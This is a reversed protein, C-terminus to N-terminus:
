TVISSYTPCPTKRVYMEYTSTNTGQAGTICIKRRVDPIDGTATQSYWQQTAPDFVVIEAMSRMTQTEFVIGGLLVVIGEGSGFGPM